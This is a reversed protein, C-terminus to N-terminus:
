QSQAPSGIYPQLTRSPTGGIRGRSQAATDTGSVSQSFSEQAQQRVREVGLLLAVSLTLSILTLGLTLKRNWASKIALTLLYRM